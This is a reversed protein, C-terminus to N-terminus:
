GLPFVFRGPSLIGAPDFQRKLAALVRAAAGVRGWAGVSRVLETPGQVVTLGGGRLELARRLELVRRAWVEALAPDQRVHPVAVTLSARTADVTLRVPAGALEDRQGGTRGLRRGVDVLDSLEAPPLLMRVVLEADEEPFGASAIPPDGRDPRAEQRECAVPRMREELATVDAGVREALGQVRVLLVAERAGRPGEPRPREALEVSAPVIPSTVARRAAQVLEELGAARAILLVETEPRPFLRLTAETIVGLTGWSGVALKVLDFGAVNKVVRGGLSLARGDGTILRLGLCLDRTAGYTAWLAGVSATSLTAGLTGAGSGPPDLPLWQGEEATRSGLRGLSLGAGATLTLDAPEYQVIRDLRAVSLVADPDEVPNGAGLWSGAGAPVLRWGEESARRLVAVVEQESGPLLVPTEGSWGAPLPAALAQEGLLHAFAERARALRDQRLGPGGASEVPGAGARAPPSTGSVPIM